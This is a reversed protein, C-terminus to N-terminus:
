RYGRDSVATGYGVAAAVVSIIKTLLMNALRKACVNWALDSRFENPLFDGATAGDDRRVDIM